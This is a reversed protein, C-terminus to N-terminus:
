LVNDPVEKLALQPKRQCTIVLLTNIPYLMINLDALLYKDPIRYETQNHLRIFVAGPCNGCPFQTSM